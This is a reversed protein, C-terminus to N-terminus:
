RKSYVQRRSKPRSVAARHLCSPLLRAAQSAAEAGALQDGDLDRHEAPSLSPPLLPAGQQRWQM